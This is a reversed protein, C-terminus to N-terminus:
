ECRLAVIPDVRAARRAPLYSATLAAAVLVVPVLAFTLPDVPSVGFLMSQMLRTVAAAGGLGIAVGIGALVLGRLVFLRRIDHAQAGLAMRVGIERTRQAAIYAIVSFIGAIGLVLAIAAAIALMVMTFSTQAMSAARIEELTQVAALPLNPNVSLVAQELERQFAATGVRNSRVAFAVTRQQYSDNLLPWYVIPTAPHNVGDDREDGVVGVVERWPREGGTARMRKGLATSPEKWYKRALNESILIVPRREHIDTWTISRGAVLRNGMTEFYGPAFSKFRFLPARADDPV